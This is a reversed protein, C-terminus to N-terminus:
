SVFGLQRRIDAPTIGARRLAALSSDGASKALKRGTEDGILRHHRYCPEPLGLLAQLLRHIHTAYFLDHGRTVHTIGQGADDSVVAMHYSTAIDKRALIVDGWLEPHVALTGTEGKPGTAEEHFTLGATADFALAKRLDLRLSHPERADLRRTREDAPLRRCTGPYVPAGDPDRREPRAREIDLRSCFCPYVLDMARLGDLARAYDDMHESQRRVPEEWELGLWALDELAGDVYVQPCRATDIDEIRVLFRADMAQATDYAYLASFAHGLHLRGNPSPAFRLAPRTM